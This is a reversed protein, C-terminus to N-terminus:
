SSRFLFYLSIRRCWYMFKGFRIIMEISCQKRVGIRDSLWKSTRMFSIFLFFRGAAFEGSYSALIFCLVLQFPWSDLHNLVLICQCNTWCLYCDYQPRNLVTKKFVCKSNWLPNLCFSFCFFQFLNLFFLISILQFNTILVWKMHFVVFSCM